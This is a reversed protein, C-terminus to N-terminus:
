DDGGQKAALIAELEAIAEFDKPRGAARKVKILPALELCQCRSGFIEIPRSHPLLNEFTGGGCIEALLDIDGLTTHLTFNGGNALTQADWLFPLGPPAGRPYPEYAALAAVLRELNDPERCYLVDIDQTLRAAGHAVAAVGGILIFRVEYRGLVKLFEDFRTM